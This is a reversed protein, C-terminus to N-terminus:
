FLYHHNDTSDDSPEDTTLPAEDADYGYQTPAYPQRFTELFSRPHNSKALLGTEPDIRLRVLGPPEPAHYVPLDEIINKMFNGWIPAAAKIGYEGLTQPQDFGVWVGAVLYGNYGMFWADFYDNTSGTKGALDPRKFQRLTPSPSKHLTDKLAANMLYAIQPDIAQPATLEPLTQSQKTICSECAKLTTASLVEQDQINTINNVIHPSVDFGGNALIAYAHTLQMPTVSGSGLALSLSQPIQDKSFGFKELYNTAEKIGINELLRISVLNRSRILGMRLPTPGAFDKNHNQPRWTDNSQSADQMVVPADNVITALTYGHNLAAAYVFPKFCSGAQRQAQTARNYKSHEYHYGGVLASIAGTQPDMAVFAGEVKPSQSLHWENDIQQVEVIDGASLVEQPKQPAKGLRNNALPKKAWAINKWAITIATDDALIAQAKDDHVATIQATRLPPVSKHQQWNESNHALPGRYGHRKDYDLIGQQLAQNAQAQHHPDITTHVSYGKTYAEQGFHAVMWQRVMEAVYPAHIQTHMKHRKATIPSAIAEQHTQDDIYGEEQMRNLVYNRRKLASEPNSVPNIRSPAKPLGAIMAMEAISLEELTKGYYIQAAAAVGYASQGLYIKNIYLELIKEKSLEADIKIALLIENVKRAYTKKRSLFFNRAVQMTITSAGQRKKGTKVLAIVARTLSLIDIGAHEFFRQDESALIAHILPAPVQSLTVPIRRKEGYEAILQKKQGYIRLPVQLNIDKLTEVNPLQKYAYYYLLALLIFVFSATSAITWLFKPMLYGSHNQTRM